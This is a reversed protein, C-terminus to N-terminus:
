NSVSRNDRVECLSALRFALPLTMASAYGTLSVHKSLTLDIQSGTTQADCARGGEVTEVSPTERPGLQALKLILVLTGIRGASM